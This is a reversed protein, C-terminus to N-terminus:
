TLNALLPNLILFYRLQHILLGIGPLLLFPNLDLNVYRLAYMKLIYIVQDPRLSFNVNPQVYICVGGGFRSNHECNHGIIDYGPIYVEDLRTENISLVDLPNDSLLVRLENIHKLLSAIKSSALKFGCMSPLFASSEHCLNSNEKVVSIEDARSSISIKKPQLPKIPVQPFLFKNCPAIM